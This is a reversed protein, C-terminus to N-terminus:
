RGRAAAHRRVPSHQLGGQHPHEGSAPAQSRLPAPNRAGAEQEAALFSDEVIREVVHPHGDAVGFDAHLTALDQDAIVAAFRSRPEVSLDEDALARELRAVDQAEPVREQDVGWRRRRAPDGLRLQDAGAGGHGGHAAADVRDRGALVHDHDGALGAGALFHDRAEHM